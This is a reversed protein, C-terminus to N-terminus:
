TSLMLLLTIIFVDHLSINYLPDAKKNEGEIREELCQNDMVIPLRSFRIMGSFYFFDTRDVTVSFIIHM